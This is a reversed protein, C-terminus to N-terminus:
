LELSTLLMGTSSICVILSSSKVKLKLGFHIRICTDKIHMCPINLDIIYTCATRSLQVHLM